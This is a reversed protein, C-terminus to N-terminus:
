AGAMVTALPWCGEVPGRGAQEAAVWSVAALRCTVGSELLTLPYVLLVLMWASGWNAM